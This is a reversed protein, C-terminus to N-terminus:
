HLPVDRGLLVEEAVAAKVQYEEGDMKVKISALPYEGTARNGFTVVITEEERDAPSIVDKNVVTRSAGSDIQMRAPKGTVQGEGM